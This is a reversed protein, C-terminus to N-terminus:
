EEVVAYYWKVKGTWQNFLTAYKIILREKYEDKYKTVTRYKTVDRYNTECEKIPTSYVRYMSYYTTHPNNKETLFIFSKTQYPPIISSRLYSKMNAKSYDTNYYVETYNFYAMDYYLMESKFNLSRDENNTVLLENYISDSFGNERYDSSMQDAYMEWDVSYSAERYECDTFPEKETYSEQADYPVRETYQQTATYPFPITFIVVAAVVLIIIVVSLIVMLKKSIHFGKEHSVSHLKEEKKEHEKIRTVKHGCGPCFADEKTLNAGCKPCKM